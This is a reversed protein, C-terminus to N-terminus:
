EYACQLVKITIDDDM